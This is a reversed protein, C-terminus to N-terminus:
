DELGPKLALLVLDIEGDQRYRFGRTALLSCLRDREKRGGLDQTAIVIRAGPRVMASVAQITEVIQNADVGGPVLLLECMEDACGCTCRRALEVRQYGRRWLACMADLAKPGAICVPEDVRAAVTLLMRDLRQELSPDEAIELPSSVSQVTAAM